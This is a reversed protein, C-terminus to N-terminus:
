TRDIAAVALLFAAVVLLAIAMAYDGRALRLGAFALSAVAIVAYYRQRFPLQQV